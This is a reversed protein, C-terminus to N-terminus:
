KRGEPNTGLVDFKYEKDDPYPLFFVPFLRRSYIFVRVKISKRLNFVLIIAVVSLISPFIYLILTLTSICLQRDPNIKEGDSCTVNEFDLILKKQKIIEYFMESHDCDCIFPNGGITIKPQLDRLRQLVKIDIERIVNNALRLDTLTDPLNEMYLKSISANEAFIHVFTNLPRQMIETINPLYKVTPNNELLLFLANFIDNSSTQLFHQRADLHDVGTCNMIILISEEFWEEKSMHGKYISCSGEKKNKTALLNNTSCPLEDMRIYFTKSLAPRCKDTTYKFVGDSVNKWKKNLDEFIRKTDCDCFPFTKDLNTETTKRNDFAWKWIAPADIRNGSLYLKRLPYNLNPMHIDIQRLLNHALDLVELKPLQTNLDLIFSEIRNRKLSLKTLSSFPRQIAFSTLINRSFDLVQLSDSLRNPNFHKLNGHETLILSTLNEQLVFTDSSTKLYIM